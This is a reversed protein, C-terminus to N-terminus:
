QTNINQVPSLGQSLGIEGGGGALPPSGITPFPEYNLKIRYQFFGSPM